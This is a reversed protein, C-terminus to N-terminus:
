DSDTDKDRDIPQALQELRKKTKAPVSGSIASPRVKFPERRYLMHDMSPRFKPKSLNEMRTTLPFVIKHRRVMHEPRDLNRPLKYGQVARKPKALEICRKSAIANKAYKPIDWTANRFPGTPREKASSLRVIRESPVSKLAAPSVTTQTPKEPIFGPPATKPRALQSFLIREGCVMAPKAVEWIPSDRGCSYTYQPVNEKHDQHTKKPTALNTIRESPEGKMAAPKVEWIVSPCGCSYCFEPRTIKDGTLFDKKPTSLSIIRESPGKPRSVIKIPWLTDQTGWRVHPGEIWDKYTKKPQSLKILRKRIKVKTKKRRRSNRKRWKKRKKRIRNNQNTNKKKTKKKRKKNRRLLPRFTQFSKMLKLLVDRIDSVLRSSADKCDTVPTVKGGKKQRGKEKHLKNYIGRVATM